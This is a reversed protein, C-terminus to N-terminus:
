PTPETATQEEDEVQDDNLRGAELAQLYSRDGLLWADTVARAIPAANAGGSGAHEAVVAIAIEPDEIPAFGIFLAHSRLEEPREEHDAGETLETLQATGTKGALKYSLDEGIIRATGRDDEVAGQMAAIIKEWHSPHELEISRQPKTARFPREEEKGDRIAHVLHPNVTLGRNALTATAKALQIPTASFYGLGIGTVLTEGQYWSSGLQRRKWDRSPLIGSRESTTDIRTPRGFGFRDLLGSMRDIGLELATDYFFVNCSEVIAERLDVEGHGRERWCRFPEERGELHYEGNCYVTSDPEIVDHELAALAIFPKITSAPPYTGRVARNILPQWGEEELEQFRDRSMGEVFRNPDFSPRSALALVEGTAPRLAVVAGRQQGLARQAVEQLSSDLTLVLDKGARPPEREITRIVRGAANTEVREMGVEGHLMQEYTAEIGSKGIYKTGRYSSRDIQRLDRPTIRGVHGVAHSTEQAEPYHRVLRADIELAPFRHRHVALRAVEKEELQTRLPIEEFHSANRLRDRFRGRQAETLQIIEGIEDLLTAPDSIREPTAVLQYSPRNEALTVGNRDFIQGRSPPIANVELRNEQSLTAYHGHDLVQLRVMQAILGGVALTCLAAAIIIRRQIARATTHEHQLPENM